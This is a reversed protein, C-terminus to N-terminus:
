VDEFAEVLITEKNEKARRRVGYLGLGIPKIQLWYVTDQFIITEEHMLWEQAAKKCIKVNGAGNRLATLPYPYNSENSAFTKKETFQRDLINNM